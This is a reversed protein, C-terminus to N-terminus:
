SQRAQRISEVWICLLYGIMAGGIAWVWEYGPEPDTPKAPIGSALQMVELREVEEAVRKLEERLAANRAYMEQNETFMFENTALVDACEARVANNFEESGVTLEPLDIDRSTRSSESKQFLECGATLTIIAILLYKM